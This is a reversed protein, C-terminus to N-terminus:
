MGGWELLSLLVVLVVLGGFLVQPKWRERAFWRGRGPGRRDVWPLLALLLLGVLPVIWGAWLPPLYRLLQQIALFFWPALVPGGSSSQGVDAAPGLGPPAFRSLLVLGSTVLLAVILERYFLTERPVFTRPQGDHRVPRSIGGDVRIRWIHYGIGGLGLLTLGLVHWTYFRLITASGAAEDGVVLLYLAHGGAPLVKLLNTGVVLAWISGADYRLVYGSFSWLLTVVLLAVGILWNFDRPPRYGGTFVIRAIHLITAIVLLQASWYHLARAFRGWTVVSDILVLSRYAEPVAPVYYFMLLLGTVITLFTALVAIGGLGFTYTLRASSGPIQSPHLNYFFSKKKRWLHIARLHRSGKM